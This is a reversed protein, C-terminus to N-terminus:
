TDSDNSNVDQASKIAALIDAKKKKAEGLDIGHAEAYAKLEAVNMEDLDDGQPQEPEQQPEQGEQPQEPEQQPEQGEQPQEPEAEQQAISDLHGACKARISVESYAVAPVSALEVEPGVTFGVENLRVAFTKGHALLFPLGDVIIFKNM